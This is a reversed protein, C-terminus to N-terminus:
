GEGRPRRVRARHFVGALRDDLAVAKVAAERAKPTAAAATLVGYDYLTLYADAIGSYAAAYNRDMGAAQEFYQIATKLGEETRKNWQYRGRLYREYAGPHAIPRRALRGQEEETLHRPLTEAVRHSISDQVAFMNTFQEDFTEAWLPTGSSVSILQATLRIRDGDRQFTGDLVAEVQLTAGISVADVPQSEFERIATTPRVAIQPLNSLQTILADTMGLGLYEDGGVTGLARFPMVALTRVDAPRGPDSDRLVLAAMGAILVLITLEHPRETTVRYPSQDTLLRYLLVGLAYIDAAEDVSEGRMQEPSAFGPTMMGAATVTASEGGASSLLKAIGFDLLKPVGETNVLINTPKIDRHVVQHDHAHQVASCVTRFLILRERISLRATDSYRDIFAGDVYEM